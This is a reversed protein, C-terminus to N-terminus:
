LAVCMLLGCDEKLFNWKTGGENNGTYQFRTKFVTSDKEHQM